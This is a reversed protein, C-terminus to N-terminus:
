VIGGFDYSMPRCVHDEPAFWYETVGPVWGNGGEGCFMCWWPAEALAQELRASLQSRIYDELEGM